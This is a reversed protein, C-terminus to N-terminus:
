YLTVDSSFQSVPVSQSRANDQLKPTFYYLAITMGSLMWSWITYDIGALTQTYPFPTVWDGLMMSILIAPYCAILSYKLATLFSNDMQKRFLKWIMIGQGAWMAIWLAFGVVGTQAVIDIYNNHSLDATGVANNYYGYAQFYYEYGAPGAGFLFHKGVVDLARAWAISRTNGSVNQEEGFTASIFSTNFAAWILIGIVAVITLKRSFIVLLLGASIIMPLWGSLWSLGLGLTINTWIGLGVVLVLRMYNSITKNFFLQGLALAAFWTPFQGNVNVLPITIGIVHLLGIATGFGIFWWAIIKFARESRIVNSFLIYTVPSIILVLATTLRVVAKQNFLYSARQEPFAGSWFFAIIVAIIFFLAPRNAFSPRLDFKKEVVTKRFLWIISWLILTLFTFTLSTGTGTGIGTHLVMSLIFVFIATAQMNRYFMLFVVLGSMLIAVAFTVIITSPVAPDINRSLLALVVTGLLCVGVLSVYLFATYNRDLIWYRLWGVFSFRRLVSAFM